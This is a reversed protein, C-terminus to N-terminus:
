KEDLWQDIDANLEEDTFYEGKAVEERSNEIIARHNESLKFLKETENDKILFSYMEKLLDDNHSSNIEQILKNRIELTNM